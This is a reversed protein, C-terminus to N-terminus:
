RGDCNDGVARINHEAVRQDFHAKLSTLKACEWGGSGMMLYRCCKETGPQCVKKVYDDKLIGM